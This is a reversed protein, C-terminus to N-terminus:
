IHVETEDSNSDANHHFSVTLGKVSAHAARVMWSNNLLVDCPFPPSSSLEPVVKRCAILCALGYEIDPKSM